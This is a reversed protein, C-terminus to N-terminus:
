LGKLFLFVIMLIILAAASFFVLTFILSYVLRGKFRKMVNQLFGSGSFDGDSYAAEEISKGLDDLAM